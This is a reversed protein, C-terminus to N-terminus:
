QKYYYWIFGSLLIIFLLLKIENSLINWYTLILTLMLIIGGYYLGKKIPLYKKNDFLLGITIALIAAVFLFITSKNIKESYPINQWLSSALFHMFLNFTIMISLIIFYDIFTIM